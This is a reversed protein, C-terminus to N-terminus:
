DAPIPLYTTPWRYGFAALQGTLRRLHRESFPTPRMAASVTGLTVHGQCRQIAASIQAAWYPASARSVTHPRGPRIRPLHGILASRWALAELAEADTAFNGVAFRFTGDRGRRAELYVARGPPHLRIRSIRITIHGSTATPDDLVVHEALNAPHTRTTLDPDPVVAGWIDGTFAVPGNPDMGEIDFQVHDLRSRSTM